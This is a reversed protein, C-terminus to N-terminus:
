GADLAKAARRYLCWTGAGGHWSLLLLWVDVPHRGSGLMDIGQLVPVFHAVTSCWLNLPLSVCCFCSPGSLM